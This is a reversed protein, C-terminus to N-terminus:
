IMSKINHNIDIYGLVYLRLNLQQMINYELTFNTCSYKLCMNMKDKENIVWTYKIAFSIFGVIIYMYMYKYILAIINTYQFGNISDRSM